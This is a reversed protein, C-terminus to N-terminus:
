NNSPRARVMTRQSYDSRDDAFGQDCLGFVAVLSCFPYGFRGEASECRCGFDRGDFFMLRAPRFYGGDLVRLRSVLVGSRLFHGHIENPHPLAVHLVYRWCQDLPGEDV